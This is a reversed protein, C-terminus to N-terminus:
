CNGGTRGRIWSYLAYSSICRFVSLICDPNRGRWRVKVEQVSHLRLFCRTHLQGETWALDRMLGGMKDSHIVLKVAFLAVLGFVAWAIVTSSTVWRYDAGVFACPIEGDRLIWVGFEIKGQRYLASMVGEGLGGGVISRMTSKRV